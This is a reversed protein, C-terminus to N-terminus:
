GGNRAPRSFAKELTTREHFHVLVGFDKKQYVVMAGVAVSSAGGAHVAEVLDPVGGAGGQAIVPIAVADAVRRILDVDFGRWTGEREIATLLIEGAGRREM